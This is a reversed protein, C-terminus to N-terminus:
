EQQAARQAETLFISALTDFVAVLADASDPRRKFFEVTRRFWGRFGSSKVFADMSDPAEQFTISLGHWLALVQNDYFDRKLCETEDSPVIPAYKLINAAMLGAVKHHQVRGKRISHRNILAEVDKLYNEVAEAVKTPSLRVDLLAVDIGDTLDCWTAFVSEIRTARVEDRREAWAPISNSPNTTQIPPM